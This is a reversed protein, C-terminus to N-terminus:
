SVYWQCRLLVDRVFMDKTMTRTDPAKGNVLCGVIGQAIELKKQAELSSLRFLASGGLSTLKCATNTPTCLHDKDRPFAELISCQLRSNEDSRCLEAIMALALKFTSEIM